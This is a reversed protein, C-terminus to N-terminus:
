KKRRLFAKAERKLRKIDEAASDDSEPPVYDSDEDIDESDDNIFSDDDDIEGDDDDLPASKAPDKTHKYEKKHLPNKRYCSTGYPCEPRDDDEEEEEEGAGEVFDSDGPHSCEQFHVPNKRYCDKGYPCPARPHAKAQSPGSSGTSQGVSVASNVEQGGAGVIRGQPRREKEGGDKPEAGGRRRPASARLASGGSVPGVEGQVDDSEEGTEDKSPRAPRRAEVASSILPKSKTEEGEDSHFRKARKRPTHEVKGQESEEGSSVTRGRVQKPRPQKAPTPTARERGRKMDGKCTSPSKVDAAAAMMWAPLVRKRQEPTPSDKNGSGSCGASLQKQSGRAQTKAEEEKEGSCAPASGTLQTQTVSQTLDSQGNLAQLHVPEECPKPPTSPPEEDELGRSNRQTSNTSISVVRYIYKGPLLSFLDGPLLTHWRDRELPEPPDEMSSQCFCPNLHTPKIRLQGGKNELLGHHRSVRKDSVGFFPGRGLVTEGPPLPISSGGDVSELEFTSM